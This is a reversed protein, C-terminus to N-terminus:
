DADNILRATFDVGRYARRVQWVAENLGFQTITPGCQQLFVLVDHEPMSFTSAPEPNLDLIDDDSDYSPCQSKMPYNIHATRLSPLQSLHQPLTAEFIM